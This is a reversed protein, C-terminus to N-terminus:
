VVVIQEYERNCDDGIMRKELDEYRNRRDKATPHDGGGKWAGTIKWLEYFYIWEIVWPIITDAISYHRM